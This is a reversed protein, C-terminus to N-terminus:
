GKGEYHSSLYVECLVLLIAFLLFYLFTRKVKGLDVIWYGFYIMRFIIFSACLCVIFLYMGFIFKDIRYYWYLHGNMGPRDTFTAYCLWGYSAFLFGCVVTILIILLDHFLTTTTKM